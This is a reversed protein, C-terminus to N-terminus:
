GLRLCSSSRTQGPLRVTDRAGTAAGIPPVNPAGALYWLNPTAETAARRRLVNIMDAQLAADPSDLAAVLPPLTEPSLRAMADLLIRRDDQKQERQLEQILPPIAAAGSLNLEQLAYDHEEAAKLLNGALM